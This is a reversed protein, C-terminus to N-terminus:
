YVFPLLRYSNKIYERYESFFAILLSEEFLMKLIMNTLFVFLIVTNMISYNHIVLPPIALILSLYMPHRILKYPGSQILTAGQRPTPSINLKSKTMVFIAWGGIGIGIIQLSFLYINSAFWTNFLFFYALTSYQIFTLLNSKLQDTM